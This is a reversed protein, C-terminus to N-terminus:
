MSEDRGSRKVAEWYLAIAILMEKSDDNYLISIVCEPEEGKNEGVVYALFVLYKNWLAGL